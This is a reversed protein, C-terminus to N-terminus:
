EKEMEIANKNKRWRLQLKTRKGDCICNQEKEMAFAIQEKKM